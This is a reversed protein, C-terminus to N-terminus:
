NDTKYLSLDFSPCLDFSLSFYGGNAKPKSEEAQIAKQVQEFIDSPEANQLFEEMTM